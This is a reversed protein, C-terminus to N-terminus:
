CEVVEGFSDFMSEIARADKFSVTRRVDTPQDALARCEMLASRRAADMEMLADLEWSLLSLSSLACWAQVDQGTFPQPTEFPTQRSQEM